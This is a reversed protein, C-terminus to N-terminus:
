FLFSFVAYLLIAVERFIQSCSTVKNIVGLLRISFLNNCYVGTAAADRNAREASGQSQSNRLKGHVIKSEKWLEALQTVLENVFESSTKGSRMLKAQVDAPM